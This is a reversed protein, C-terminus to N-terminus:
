DQTILEGIFFQDSLNLVGITIKFVSLNTYKVISQYFNKLMENIPLKNGDIDNFLDYIFVDGHFYEAFMIPTNKWYILFQEFDSEPAIDTYFSKMFLENKIKEYEGDPCSINFVNELLDDVDFNSCIGTLEKENACEIISNFDTLKYHCGQLKKLSQLPNEWWEPYHIM